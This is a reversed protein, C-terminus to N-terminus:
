RGARLLIHRGYIGRRNDEPEAKLIMASPELRMLGRIQNDVDGSTGWTFPFDINGKPVVVSATNPNSFDACWLGELDDYNTSLWESVNVFQIDPEDFAQLFASGTLVIGTQRAISSGEDRYVTNTLERTTYIMRGAQNAPDRYLTIITSTQANQPRYHEARSKARLM